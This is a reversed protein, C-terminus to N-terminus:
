GSIIIYFPLASHQVTQIPGVAAAKWFRIHRMPVAGLWVVERNAQNMRDPAYRLLSVAEPLPNKNNDDSLGEYVSAKKFENPDLKGGTAFQSITDTLGSCSKTKLLFYGAAAIVLLMVMGKGGKFLGLLLPLFNLLGGGGGPFSGGGGGGGSNDNQENYDDKQSEPDDVMRIPM